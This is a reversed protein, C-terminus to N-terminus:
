LIISKHFVGSVILVSMISYMIYGGVNFMCDSSQSLHVCMDDDQAVSVVKGDDKFVSQIIDEHEM